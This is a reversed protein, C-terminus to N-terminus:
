KGVWIKRWSLEHLDWAPLPKECFQDQFRINQSRPSYKENQLTKYQAATLKLNHIPRFYTLNPHKLQM